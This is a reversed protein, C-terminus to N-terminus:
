KNFGSLLYISKQKPSIFTIMEAESCFMGVFIHHVPVFHASHALIFEIAVGVSSVLPKGLWEVFYMFNFCKQMNMSGKLRVFPVNRWLWIKIAGSSANFCKLHKLKANKKKRKREFMEPWKRKWWPSLHFILSLFLLLYIIFHNQQASFVFHSRQTYIITM